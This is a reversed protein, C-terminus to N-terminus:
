SRLVRIRETGYYEFLKITNEDIVEGAVVIPVAPPCALASSAFVRGISRNVAIEESPSLMADRPHCYRKPLTVAPPTEEIKKNKKIGKLVKSLKDVAFQGNEPSFMMVIYDKDAFEPEIGNKRLIDAIEYGYYGHQKASITVKLPEDGIFKYGSFFLAFRFLDLKTVFKNLKEKYVNEIYANLADLSQLILWSPSTSAFLSRANEILGGIVGNVANNIHLYAGGTLCPLTKHASDCCMDAGLNLPHKNRSLFNLYAGHANDVLLIAGYKECTKKLGAIDLTNGLYDPSTVYVASPKEKAGEMATKLLDPTIKQSLLDGGATLWEFDFGIECAANVFAKHANRGAFILPKKGTEKAHMVALYLMQKISCTAGETSYVTKAAGFLSAANAESEAIIGNPSSLVDAGFVETIDRKEYGYFGTGKHGPMHLRIAGSKIYEDVFDIIPTNM